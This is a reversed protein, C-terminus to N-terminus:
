FDFSLQGQSQLKIMNPFGFIEECLQSAREYKDEYSRSICVFFRWLQRHKDTLNTIEPNNFDRLSRPAQDDVKIPVAAEKLAMKASPCYIIVGGEPIELQKAIEQEAKTRSDNENFYFQKELAKQDELTIGGYSEKQQLSLFYVRKYLQRNEIAEVLKSVAKNRSRTRLFYLFSDDRLEFLDELKIKQDEIALELAKSIMAGAVAKAHHYYVRETLTFRIRLLNILESLADHRFLGDKQLEIVFQGNVISFYRFIREDYCQSFGCFFADRKLYDLLDACITGAVIEYIFPAALEEKHASLLSSVEHYIGQNILATRIPKSDLFYSLRAKNEDHREFIRREDEFTHGYPIHTIDHMLAGTIIIREMHLDIPSKQGIYSLNNKIAQIIKKALWCTGLSHEFRSHIACPYILSSAGLQKIGRLRQMQPTDILALEEPSFIMDGHVADRFIKNLM